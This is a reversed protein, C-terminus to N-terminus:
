GFHCDLLCGHGFIGAFIVALSLAVTRCFYFTKNWDEFTYFFIHLDNFGNKTFITFTAVQRQLYIGRDVPLV